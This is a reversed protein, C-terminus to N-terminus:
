ERLLMTIMPRTIKRIPLITHINSCEIYVSMTPLHRCPAPAIPPISGDRTASLTRSSYRVRAIAIMPPPIKKLKTTAILRPEIIPMYRPKFERKISVVMTFGIVIMSFFAGVSYRVIDSSFVFGGLPTANLTHVIIDILLYHFNFHLAMLIALLSIVEGVIPKTNGSMYDYASAISLGMSFSIIDGAFHISSFVMHLVFGAIFGLMLEMLGAIVFTLLTPYVIIDKVLPVFVISLLVSLIVRVSVPFLLNGFFPFFTMIGSFRLMLLSFAIVNANTIYHVFDLM